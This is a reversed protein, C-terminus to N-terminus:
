KLTKFFNAMFKDGAQGQLIYLIDIVNVDICKLIRQQEVIYHNGELGGSSFLLSRGAGVGVKFM